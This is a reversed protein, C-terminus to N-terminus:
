SGALVEARCAEDGEARATPETLEAAPAAAALFGKWIARDLGCVREPDAFALDEFPCSCATVAGDGSTSAAFGFESLLRALREAAGRATSPASGGPAEAGAALGFEYGVRELDEQSGGERSAKLLLGALVEYRREPIQVAVEAPGPSYFKAPRGAGAHRRFEAELFGEGVLKDLHFGALRKDIDLEAAVQEKSLADTAGTVAFYVRRRTGDGLASVLRAIEAESAEAEPRRAPRQAPADGM